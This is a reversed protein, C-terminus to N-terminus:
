REIWNKIDDSGEKGEDDIGDPGCSWLDYGEEHFEGPARYEYPKGWPDKLEEIMAPAKLYPGDWREEDDDSPRTFLAALSEDTDPYRGMEFQYTDLAKGIPGTAGVTTRALDIKAKKAQNMLAPVAMAAMLALIGMVLLVEMLTFARRNRRIKKRM